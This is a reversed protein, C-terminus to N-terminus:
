GAIPIWYYLLLPETTTSPYKTYTTKYYDGRKVPMTFSNIKTPWDHYAWDTVAAGARLTTPNPNSDTFGEIYDAVATHYAKIVGIAFGDSEAQYAVGEERTEWEGLIASRVSIEGSVGLIGGVKLNGPFIYDGTQFTGSGVAEADHGAIPPTQGTVIGVVSIVAVLGVLFLFHKDNINFEIKM